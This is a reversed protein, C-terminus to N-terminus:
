YLSLNDILRTNGVYAAMFARPSNLPSIEKVEQLNKDNLVEFYDLTVQPYKELSERVFAKVDSVTQFDELQNKIATLTKYLFLAQKRQDASLYVNRSSMALGDSERVTPCGVLQVGFHLERVLHEIILFQQYDKLGFYARHPQVIHFLISVVQLVGNFHGARSAGCLKKDLHKLSLQVESPRDGYIESATPAFVGDVGLQELLQCDQEFTRPYKSLDENPGFQTPNVFISVLTYDNESVSQKVLSAHGAHLAGMTPVFGIKGAGELKRRLQRYGSIDNIVNM